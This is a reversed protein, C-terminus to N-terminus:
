YNYRFNGTENSTSLKKAVILFRHETGEIYGIENLEREVKCLNEFCTDVSFSPFEWEIIKAFYVLAGTDYFCIPTFAEESKLIEFGNDKFAKINHKLDHPPYSPKFNNILKESLDVNNKVGVQQTIFHGGTKLIRNVESIDYSEHRNIIIDFSDDEFPLVADDFVQRVTIGLPKLKEQCIVVNPPYAETVATNYVPHDLTLLFEGGGTGMDLLKHDAKLYSLLIKKYDWPIHEGDWRGDLYSFDWGKFGKKEESKLYNKFEGRNM